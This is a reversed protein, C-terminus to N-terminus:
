MHSDSMRLVVPVGCGYLVVIVDGDMAKDPVLGFSGDILKVMKRNWTVAQVRRFFVKTLASAENGAEGKPPIRLLSVTGLSSRGRYLEECARRM